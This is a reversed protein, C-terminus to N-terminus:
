WVSPYIQIYQSTDQIPVVGFEGDVWQLLSIYRTNIIEPEEADFDLWRLQHEQQPIVITPRTELDYLWGEGVVQGGDGGFLYAVPVLDVFNSTSRSYVLLYKFQWWNEFLRMLCADHDQDLAIKWEVQARFDFTDAMYIMKEYLSSDIAELFLKPAIKPYSGNEVSDLTLHITDAAERSEFMAYLEQAATPEKAGSRCAFLTLLLAALTICHTYKM